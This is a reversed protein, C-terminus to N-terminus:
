RNKHKQKYHKQIELANRYKFRMETYAACKGKDAVM